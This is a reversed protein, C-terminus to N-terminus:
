VVGGISKLKPKFSIQLHGNSLNHKLIYDVIRIYDVEVGNVTFVGDSLYSIQTGDRFEMAKGNDGGIILSGDEVAKILEDNLTKFAAIQEETYNRSSIRNIDIAVSCQKLVTDIKQMNSQETITTNDTNAGALMQRFEKFTLTTQDDGFIKLGYNPTTEFEAM